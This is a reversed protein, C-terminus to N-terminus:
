YPLHKYLEKSYPTYPLSKWYWLASCMICWMTKVDLSMQYFWTISSLTYYFIRLYQKNFFGKSHPNWGTQWKIASFHVNSICWKNNGIYCYFCKFLFIDFQLGQQKPIVQIHNEFHLYVCYISTNYLDKFVQPKKLKCSPLKLTISILFQQLKNQM